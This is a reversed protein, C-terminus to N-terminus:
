SAVLVPDPQNHSNKRKRRRSSRSEVLVRESKLSLEDLRVSYPVFKGFLDIKVLAKGNNLVGAFIAERNVFIDAGGIVVIDGINFGYTDAVTPMPLVGREDAANILSEVIEPIV